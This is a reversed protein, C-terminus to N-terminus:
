GYGIQFKDLSQKNISFIIKYKIYYYNTILENIKLHIRKYLSEFFLLDIYLYIKM